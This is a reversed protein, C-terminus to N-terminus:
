KKAMYILDFCKEHVPVVSYDDMKIGTTLDTNQKLLKKRNLRNLIDYPLQLMWRPLRYQLRLPDFRTIRRVGERNKEYYEWVAENGEVGLPEVESFVGGLLASFEEATYERVHWPNRTLSM